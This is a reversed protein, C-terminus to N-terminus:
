LRFEAFVRNAIPIGLPSLKMRDGDTILLGKKNLEDIVSSYVDRLTKGYREKFAKECVGQDLMRLGLFVTEWMQINLDLEESKEVSVGNECRKIYEDLSSFNSWRVNTSSSHSGLGLGLYEQNRWYIRNHDCDHGNMCFNSIEYHNYGAATLTNIACSYLQYSLDNEIPHIKGEMVMYSLPTGEEISLDYTSIHQPNFSIGQKLSRKWIKETQNPIGFILDLSFNSFGVKKILDISEMAQSASHIRGLFSLIEDDFSQVGLSIRNVGGDQLAKLKSITLTGPNAEATIEADGCISFHRYISGMLRSLSEKTLSTPTGGGIYITKIPPISGEYVIMEKELADMYKLVKDDEESCGKAEYAYSLFDCYNCKSLCFPIHVYLGIPRGSFLCSYNNM